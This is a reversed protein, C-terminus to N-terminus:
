KGAIEVHHEEEALLNLGVRLVDTQRDTVAGVVDGHDLFGVDADADRAVLSQM